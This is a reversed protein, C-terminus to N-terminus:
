EIEERMGGRGYMRALMRESLICTCFLVRESELGVFICVSVCNEKRGDM